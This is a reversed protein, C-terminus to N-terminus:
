RGMLVHAEVGSWARFRVIFGSRASLTLLGTSCFSVLLVSIRAGDAWGEVRLEACRSRLGDDRPGDDRIEVVFPCSHVRIFSRWVRRIEAHSLAGASRADIRRRRISGRDKKVSPLLSFM